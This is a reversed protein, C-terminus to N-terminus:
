IERMLKLISHYLEVMIDKNDKIFSYLEKIKLDEYQFLLKNRIEILNRVMDAYKEDILKTGVLIEFIDGYNTPTLDRMVMIYNVIDLLGQIYFFIAGKLAYCYEEDAEIEELESGVVRELMSIADDVVRYRQKITESLEESM